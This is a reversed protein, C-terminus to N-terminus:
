FIRRIQSTHGGGVLGLESLFSYKEFEKNKIAVFIMNKTRQFQIM